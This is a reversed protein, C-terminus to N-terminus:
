FLDLSDMYGNTIKSVEGSRKGYWIWHDANKITHLEISNGLKKMETYFYEATKYLCNLDKEGHILLIKSDTKQILHNPSIEKVINKDKEKETIWYNSRTTLDYVGSNVIIINPKANIELNDTNENWGNVLTTTLSLHGGASNGTAIIKNSDINYKRANQRIWRIASKADKVSEFPYTGHKGKIRYEVVGVVFGQKAYTKATSFFWDPKGESWSGGHFQVITPRKGKFTKNDPLFLHMDLKFDDIEKYTEIIHDAREKKHSTYINKISELYKENKCNKIFNAYIEGTNKIGLNDIHDYLYKHKWFDNTVQNTFLDNIVKFNATLQQNDITKLFGQQLYQKSKINILSIIYDKLDRSEILKENNLYKINQALRNENKQSLIVKQGTFLNHLEPYELILKSFALHIGAIENEITSKDLKNKFKKLHNTFITELSDIQKTYDIQNKSNLIYTNNQIYKWIPTGFEKQESLYIVKNKEYDIDNIRKCSSIFTLIQICLFLIQKKLM